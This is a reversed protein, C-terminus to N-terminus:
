YHFMLKIPSVKIKKKIMAYLLKMEENRITGLEEKPFITTALWKHMFRLTPHHIENTTPKRTSKLNSIDTWFHSRDFYHLSADVDLSCNEAFGLTTSLTKWTMTFSRNFLRFEVNDDDLTLTCWFEMTLLKSGEKTIIWADECGINRFILEFKTNMGTAQLLNNDFNPTHLFEKNKLKEYIGREWDDKFKIHSDRTLTLVELERYQSSSGHMFPSLPDVEINSSARSSAAQSSTRSKTSCFSLAQGLSKVANKLKKSM